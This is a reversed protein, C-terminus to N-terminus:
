SPDGRALSVAKELVGLIEPPVGASGRTEMEIAVDAAAKTKANRPLNAAYEQRYGSDGPQKTLKKLNQYPMHSNYVAEYGNRLLAVEVNPYPFVFRDAEEAGDLHGKLRPEEKTRKGDDDGVLYWRIGLANAVKALMVADSQGFEVVRIGERDLNLGLARAAAPYVWTETQGEVLLWCRAFLLAGQGHRVHYNFKRTEEPTLLGEQVRFAKIGDSTRDLRRVNCIDTDALLEGSHTSILKQGTFDRVLTWLARIAAPHLHAEPEELALVAAGHEQAELFASFLMLVALSQTGEGHRDLPIKAGTTTGLQVQARALMDFMRGPVAEISVAEGSALPVVSQVNHLGAQVQTFSEHSSVVLENVERLRDEIEEKREPSLQSDKLFPRWFPGQADFHNSADRLATLYFYRIEEQLRLIANAPVRALREGDLDLFSLDQAFDRAAHDYVCDVRLRVLHGGSGDVQLVRLRGLRRVLDDDWPENSSDAFTVEIEIPDASSPEARSDSLHHDLPRFVVRRRPGLDRLCLKLADLVSTKGSNNEGILVTVPGLELDLSKIGRFNRIKVATIRM